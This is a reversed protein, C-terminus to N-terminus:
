KAGGFPLSVSCSESSSVSRECPMVPYEIEAISGVEAAPVMAVSM